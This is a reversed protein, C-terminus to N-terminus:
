GTNKKTTNENHGEKNNQKNQKYEIWPYSITLGASKYNQEQLYVLKKLQDNIERLSGVLALMQAADTKSESESGKKKGLM